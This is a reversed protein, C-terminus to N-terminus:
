TLASLNKLLYRYEATGTRSGYTFTVTLIRPEFRRTADKMQNEASTIVIEHTNSTPTFATDGTVQELTGDTKLADLRYTGSDPTVANGDEDTFSLTVIWTTKENVVDM